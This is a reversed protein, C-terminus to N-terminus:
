PPCAASPLRTFADRRCHHSMWCCDVPVSPRPMRRRKRRRFAIASLSCRGQPPSPRVGPPDRGEETPPVQRPQSPNTGLPETARAELGHNITAHVCAPLRHWRYPPSSPGEVIEPCTRRSGGKSLSLVLLGPLAGASPAGQPRVAKRQLLPQRPQGPNTGPPETARAELGHNITDHVCAPLRHWRGPRVVAPPAISLLRREPTSQPRPPTPLSSGIQLYCKIPPCRHLEM